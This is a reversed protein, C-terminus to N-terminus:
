EPANQRIPQVNTRNANFQKIIQEIRKPSYKAMSKNRRKNMFMITDRRIARNHHANSTVYLKGSGNPKMADRFTGETKQTNIWAPVRQSGGVKTAFHMLAPLWAAKLSGVRAQVSKVYKKLDRAQVWAQKKQKPVRGRKNRLKLHLTEIKPRYLEQPIEFVRGTKIERAYRKSNGKNVFFVFKQKDEVAFIKDLDKEIAGTGAKRQKSGTGPKGDAWPAVYKVGDLSALRAQDWCLWQVTIGVAEGTDNLRKKLRQLQLPNFQVSTAM